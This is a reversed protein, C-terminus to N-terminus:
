NMEFSLNVNGVDKTKNKRLCPIDFFKQGDIMNVTDDFTQPMDIGATEPLTLALLAGLLAIFGVIVLPLWTIFNRLYIIYPSIFIGVYSCIHVISAGSGRVNTPLIEAAWQTTINCAMNVAFRSIIACLVSPLGSGIFATLVSFICSVLLAVICTWKRGTIDLIFSVLVLSPFETFSVLTFSLFFDFELGGISRVLADFVSLSCMYVLCMCIFNKRLKTIKLMSIISTNEEKNNYNSVKFQEILKLPVEQKNVRGITVVKSIAEDIRGKSLLWRPSEPIIFPALIALAMPISTALSITKWHGCALAIWPLATAGITYFIAFPLNAIITRYKPAVYELVLLYTMMMCNDYSMGLLFRCISFQLFNNAYISVIGAVCGILNSLTAAPLRGFRDGVWGVVFGGVISGVFFIAQATAQYSNKDCVWGLESSITPYPIETKNFEWGYQCSQRTWTENPKQDALLVESWNAVFSECHSYGFQSSSDLPIALNRREIQTLNELEPIWCWHNPSVETLFLQTYYAFVGFIYFPFTLCFLFIQYLGFEGASSLLEDYNIEKNSNSEDKISENNGSSVESIQATGNRAEM